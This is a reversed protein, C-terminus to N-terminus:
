SQVGLHAHKKSEPLGVVAISNGADGAWFGLGETFWILFDGVGLVRLFRRRILWFRDRM